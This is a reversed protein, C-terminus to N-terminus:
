AASDDTYSSRSREETRLSAVAEEIRDVGTSFVPIMEPMASFDFSGIAAYASDVARLMASSGERYLEAVHREKATLSREALYADIQEVVSSIRQSEARLALINRSRGAVMEEVDVASDLLTQLRPEMFTVFDADLAAPGAPTTALPVLAVGVATLLVLALLVAAARFTTM